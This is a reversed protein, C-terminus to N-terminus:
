KMYLKVALFSVSIGNQFSFYFNLNLGYYEPRFLTPSSVPPGLNSPRRMSIVMMYGLPKQHMYFVDHICTDELNGEIIGRPTGQCLSQRAVQRLILIALGVTEPDAKQKVGLGDAFARQTVRGVNFM